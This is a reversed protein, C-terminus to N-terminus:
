ARFSVQPLRHLRDSLSPNPDSISGNSSTKRWRSFRNYVTTAWRAAFWFYDREREMFSGHVPINTARLLRSTFQPQVRRLRKM